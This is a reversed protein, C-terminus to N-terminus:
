VVMVNTDEQVMTDGSHRDAEDASTVSIIEDELMAFWHAAADFRRLNHNLHALVGYFYLSTDTLIGNSSDAQTLRAPRAYHLSKATYGADPKPGWTYNEGEITYSIPQGTLTSAYRSWFNIPTMYRLRVIPTTSLYLRRQRVYRTPLSSTQDGSSITVDSSTEMSRIRLRKDNFIKNEANIIAYDQDSTSFSRHLENNVATLLEARTTITAM